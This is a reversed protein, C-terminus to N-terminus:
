RFWRRLIRYLTTVILFASAIVLLRPVWAHQQWAEFESAVSLGALGYALVAGLSGLIVAQILVPHTLWSGSRRASSPSGPSLRRVKQSRRRVPLFIFNLL